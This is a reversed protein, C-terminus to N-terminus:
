SGCPYYMGVSVNEYVGVDLRTPSLRVDWQDLTEALYDVDPEDSHGAQALAPCVTVLAFALVRGARKM